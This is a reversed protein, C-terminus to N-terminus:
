CRKFIVATNRVATASMAFLMAFEMILMVSLPEITWEEKTKIGSLAMLESFNLLVTQLAHGLNGLAPIVTSLINGRVTDNSAINADM